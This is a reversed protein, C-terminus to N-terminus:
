EGERFGAWARRGGRGGGGRGGERWIGLPDWFIEVWPQMQRSPVSNLPLFEPLPFSPHTLTKQKGPHTCLPLGRESALGQAGPQLAPTGLLGAVKHFCAARHGPRARQRHPPRPTGPRPGPSPSWCPRPLWRLDQFSHRGPSGRIPGSPAPPPLSLGGAGIQEAPGRQPGPVSEPGLEDEAERHTGAPLAPGCNPALGSVAQKM